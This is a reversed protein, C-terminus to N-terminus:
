KALAELIRNLNTRQGKKLDSINKKIWGIDSQIAKQQGEVASIRQTEPAIMKGTIDRIHLESFNNLWVAAFIAFTLILALLRLRNTTKDSM